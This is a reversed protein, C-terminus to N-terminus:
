FFNSMYKGDRESLGGVYSYQSGTQEWVSDTWIYRNSYENKEHKVQLAASEQLSDAGAFGSYVRGYRVGGNCTCQIGCRYVCEM